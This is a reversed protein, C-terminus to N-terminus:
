RHVKFHNNIVASLRKSILDQEMTRNALEMAELYTIQFLRSEYQRLVDALYDPVERPGDRFEFTAM